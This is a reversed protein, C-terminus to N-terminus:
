VSRAAPKPAENLTQAAVGAAREPRGRYL